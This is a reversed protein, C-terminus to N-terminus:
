FCSPFTINNNCVEWNRDWYDRMNWRLSPKNCVWWCETECGNVKVCECTSAALDLRRWTRCLLRINLQQPPVPVWGESGGRWIIEFWSKNEKKGKTLKHGTIKYKWVTIVDAKPLLSAPPSRSCRQRGDPWASSSIGCGTSGCSWCCRAPGIRDASLCAPPVPSSESM